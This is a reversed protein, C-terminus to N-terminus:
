RSRSRSRQGAPRVSRATGARMTGRRSDGRRSECRDTWPAIAARDHRGKGIAGATSWGCCRDVGQGPFSLVSVDGLSGLQRGRWSAGHGQAADEIVLAGAQSALAAVGQWDVPIGCFPAVVVVQAGFRLARELSEGNPSLTVPDIDYLVVKLDTGAAATAVDFCTYAPLAVTTGPRGKAGLDLARRLADTGSACLLVADAVYQRELLSRVDSVADRWRFVAGGAARVADLSLPSFVPLQRHFVNWRPSGNRRHLLRTTLEQKM